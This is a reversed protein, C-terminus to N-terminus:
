LSSYMKFLLLHLKGESTDGPSFCLKKSKKINSNGHMM